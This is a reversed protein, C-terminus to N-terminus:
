PVYLSTKFINSMLGANNVTRASIYYTKGVALTISTSKRFTGTEAGAIAQWSMVDSHGPKSGVSIETRSIENIVSRSITIDLILNGSTSKPKEYRPTVVPQPPLLFM